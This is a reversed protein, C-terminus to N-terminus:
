LRLNTRFPSPEQLRAKSRGIELDVCSHITPCVDVLMLAGWAIPSGGHEYYADVSPYVATM